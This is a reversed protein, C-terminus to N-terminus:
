YMASIELADRDIKAALLSALNVLMKTRVADDIDKFKLEYCFTDTIARVEAARKNRNLMALEGFVMGASLTTMRKERLTDVKVIVEVSGQNLFYMSDANDHRMFVTEGRRFRVPKCAAKLASLENDDLGKCIPQEELDILPNPVVCPLLPELVRDECWELAHDSDEFRFVVDAIEMGGQHKMHRVFGYKDQTSTFLIHKGKAHLTRIAQLWLIASSHHVEVVRKLDVIFYQSDAEHQMLERIVSETSGFLLDGQLEYGRITHGHETLLKCEQERRSKRSGVQAATYKVRLVSSSTSRAAHYLHLGFEESLDACVRIGRM